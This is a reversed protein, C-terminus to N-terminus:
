WQFTNVERLMKFIQIYSKMLHTLFRSVNSISFQWSLLALRRLPFAVCTWSITCQTNRITDLCSAVVNKSELGIRHLAREQKMIKNSSMTYFPKFRHQFIQYHYYCIFNNSLIFSLSYRIWCICEMIRDSIKGGLGKYSIWNM